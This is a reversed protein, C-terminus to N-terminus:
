GSGSPAGYRTTLSAGELWESVDAGAPVASAVVPETSALWRPSGLHWRGDHRVVESLLEVYPAENAPAGFGFVREPGLAANMEARGRVLRRYDNRALEGAHADLVALVEDLREAGFGVALTPFPLDAWLGWLWLPPAPSTSVSHHGLASVTARGVVEHGPHRDHPSPAVVVAPRHRAVADAVAGILAAEAHGAGSDRLGDAAPPREVLELVFGARECALDLEARRRDREAPAGLSCALNVITWGAHRLELLTAPAGISEDDPHPSVHLVTGRGGAQGTGRGAAHTV